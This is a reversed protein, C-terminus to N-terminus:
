LGHFMMHCNWVKFMQDIKAKDYKVGPAEREMSKLLAVIDRFRDMMFQVKLDRENEDKIAEQLEQFAEQPNLAKLAKLSICCSKTIDSQYINDRHRYFRALSFMANLRQDDWSPLKREAIQIAKIYTSEAKDFREEM